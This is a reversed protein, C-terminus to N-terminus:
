QDIENDNCDHGNVESRARAVYSAGQMGINGNCWSQQTIWALCDAGDRKENICMIWEGESQWGPTDWPCSGRTAQLVLAYGRSCYHYFGNINYYSGDAHIGYQTRILVVPYSGDKKGDDPLYVATCLKNGDSMPVMFKGLFRYGYQPQSIEPKSWEKLSTFAEYGRLVMCVDNTLDLGAIILNDAGIIFDMPFVGNKHGWFYARIHEGDVSETLERHRVYINNEDPWGVARNLGWNVKEIQGIQAPLSKISGWLTFNTKNLLGEETSSVLDAWKLSSVDKKRITYTRKEGNGEIRLEARHIGKEYVDYVRTAKLVSAPQVTFAERTCGATIGISLFVIMYWINSYKIM